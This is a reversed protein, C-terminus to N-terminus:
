RCARPGTPRSVTGTALLRGRGTGSVNSSCAAPLGSDATTWPSGPWPVVRPPPTLPAGAECLGDGDAVAVPDAVALLVTGPLPLLEGATLEVGAPVAGALELGGLVLGALLGGTEAVGEAPGAM